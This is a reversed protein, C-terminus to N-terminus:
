YRHIHTIDISAIAIKRYQYVISGDTPFLRDMRPPLNQKINLTETPLNVALGAGVMIVTIVVGVIVCGVMGSAM